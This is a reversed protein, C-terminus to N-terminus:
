SASDVLRRIIALVESDSCSSGGNRLWMLFEVNGKKGTIPSRMLDLISFGHSAAYMAIEQLVRKHVAPDKIIGGKGVDSKGAEFQPKVLAVLDAQPLLWAKAPPLIHRLSIFSVDVALLGVLEGLSDLYRANTRELLRVRKDQRLGFDLIGSGVDIAHVRAAGAQLLCDTFGGTSAGVDACIKGAVDIRFERLAAELKLGARSVYRQKEKLRICASSAVLAGPKDVLRGDVNVEAAMIMAAAKARSEALARDVLLMDLRRKDIM